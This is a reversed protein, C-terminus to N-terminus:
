RNLTRRLTIADYKQNALGGYYDRRRGIETFGLAHYLALAASNGDRVELFMTRAGRALARDMSTELLHRGLGAARREPAVAVLMLEAEDFIRRILTFGLLGEPGNAVQVWTDPVALAGILQSGSWAEGFRPDFSRGMLTIIGPLDHPSAIMIRTSAPENM